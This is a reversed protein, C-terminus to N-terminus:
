ELYKKIKEVVAEPTQMAKILYEKVGLKIAREKEEAEALNTLAVVLMNKGKPQARLKELLDLGSMRPLMIDLLILDINNSMAINLGEEGDRAVLVEFGEFKFKETYMKCLVPDDEVLLIRRVSTTGSGEPNINNM